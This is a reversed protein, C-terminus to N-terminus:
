TDAGGEQQKRYEHIYGAAQEVTISARQALSVPDTIRERAILNWAYGLEAEDSGQWNEIQFDADHGLLRFFTQRYERDAESGEDFPSFAVNGILATVNILSLRATRGSTWPVIGDRVIGIGGYFFSNAAEDLDPLLKAPLHLTLPHLAAPDFYLFMSLAQDSLGEKESWLAPDGELVSAAIKTAMLVPWRDSCLVHTAREPPLGLQTMEIALAMEIIQLPTYTAAKGKVARFGLPYGLRHFNKLRSQFATRKTQDIGHVAALVSELEGFTWAISEAM